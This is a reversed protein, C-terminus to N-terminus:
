GDQKPARESRNEERFARFVERLAMFTGGMQSRIDKMQGRMETVTSKATDFDTVNGDDDFGPHADVIEGVDEYAPRAALMAEEYADLAAQLAAVDRGNEAAKDIREQLKAIREEIGDFAKGMREYANLQLEWAQELKEDTVEGRVPPPEDAAYASTVPVAAVVMAVVLVAMLIKSLTNKM